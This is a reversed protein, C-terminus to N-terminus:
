KVAVKQAKDGVRVVYIGPLMDGSNSVSIGNLTYIKANEPAIIRRGETYVILEESGENIDEIGVHFKTDLDIRFNDCTVWNANTDEIMMGFTLKGTTVMVKVSYTLSPEGDSDTTYPYLIQTRVFDTKSDFEGNKGFLYYGDIEVEDSQQICTADVTITYEGNPLYQLTQYIEMNSLKGNNGPNVWQECFNSGTKASEGNLNMNDSDTVNFGNNTWGNPSTGTNDEFSPNIALYTVDGEQIGNRFLEELANQLNVEAEELSAIRNEDIFDLVKYLETAYDMLYQTDFEDKTAYVEYTLFTNAFALYQGLEDAYEELEEVDTDTNNAVQEAYENQLKSLLECIISEDREIFKGVEADKRSYEGYAAIHLRLGPLMDNIEKIVGNYEDGSFTGNNYITQAKSILAQLGSLKTATMTGEEDLIEMEIIKNELIMKNAEDSKGYYYLRFQTACFWGNTNNGEAHTSFMGIRLTDMDSVYVQSTALQEWEAVNQFTGEPSLISHVPSYATGNSSSAFGRANGLDSGNTSTLFELSYAGEPLDKLTQYLELSYFSRSWNNWCNYSSVTNLRSDHDTYAPSYKNLTLWEGQQRNSADTIDAEKFDPIKTFDPTDILFTVDMPNTESASVMGSTKYAKIAVKLNEITEEFDENLATKNEFIQATANNAAELEASGPYGSDLLVYVLDLGDMVTNYLIVGQRVTELFNALSDAMETLEELDTSTDAIDEASDKLPNEGENFILSYGMPCTGLLSTILQLNKYIEEKKVLIVDSTFVRFNDFRVYNANANEAVMGVTLRGSTISIPIYYTVINQTIEAGEEDTTDVTFNVEGAVSERILTSPDWEGDGAVFYFGEIPDTHDVSSSKAEVSLIYDGNPLDCTQYIQADAINGGSVWKECYYTGTKETFVDNNQTQFGNNQWDNLGSEFSHNAIYNQIETYDQVNQHLESQTQAALHGSFLLLSMSLVAPNIKKKM